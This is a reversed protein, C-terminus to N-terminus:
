GRPIQDWDECPIIADTGVDRAFWGERWSIWEHSNPEHPNTNIPQEFECALWGRLVPGGEPWRLRPSPKEQTVQDILDNLCLM